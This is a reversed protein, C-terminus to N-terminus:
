PLGFSIMGVSMGSGLPFYKAVTCSTFSFKCWSKTAPLDTVAMRWMTLPVGESQYELLCAVTSVAVYQDSNTAALIATSWITSRLYVRIYRPTGILLFTEHKSVVYRDDCAGGNMVREQGFPVVNGRFVEHTYPFIALGVWCVNEALM